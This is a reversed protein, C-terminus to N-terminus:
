KIELLIGVLTGLQPHSGSLFRKLIKLIFAFACIHLKYPGWNYSTVVVDQGQKDNEDRDIYKRPDLGEKGRLM